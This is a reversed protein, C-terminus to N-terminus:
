KGFKEKYVREAYKVYHGTLEYKKVTHIQPDITHYDVVPPRVTTALWFLFGAGLIFLGAYGFFAKDEGDLQKFEIILKKM